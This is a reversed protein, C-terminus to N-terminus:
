EIRKADEVGGFHGNSQWEGQGLEDHIVHRPLEGHDVCVEVSRFLSIGEVVLPHKPLEEERVAYISQCGSEANQRDSVDHAHAAERIEVVDLLRLYEHVVKHPNM